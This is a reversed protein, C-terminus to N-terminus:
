TRPIVVDARVGREPVQDHQASGRGSAIAVITLVIIGVLSLLLGPATLALSAFEHAPDVLADQGAGSGGHAAVVILEGVQGAIFLLQACALGVAVARVPRSARASQLRRLFVLAACAFAIYGVHFAAHGWPAKPGGSVAAIILPLFLAFWIAILWKYM